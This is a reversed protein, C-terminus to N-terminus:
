ETDGWLTLINQIEDQMPKCSKDWDYAKILMNYNIRSETIIYVVGSNFRLVTSIM